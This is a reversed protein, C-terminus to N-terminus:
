LMTPFLFLLERLRCYIESAQTYPLPNKGRGCELTFSPLNLEQVCWDTLGGFSASGTTRSLRYGCSNAMCKAIKSSVKPSQGNSQYFIEEGQTHLTLVGSMPMCLRILQCLAATEPESEPSEGSYKTPSGNEIGLEAEMRKYESFGADYNHNLDVGRANAQWNSFDADGNNMQLVRDYLPNDSQLGHIQYEVGDPNLMPVFYLTYKELLWSPLIGCVSAHRDCSACFDQIFRLLLISTIWEMGHHTAVYLVKKSGAGVSLLPISRGLLSNGLTGLNLFEYREGLANVRLSLADYDMVCPVNFLANWEKQNM